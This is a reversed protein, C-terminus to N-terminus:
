AARAKWAAIRDAGLTTREQKSLSQWWEGLAAMGEGAKTDGLAELTALDRPEQKPDEALPQVIYPERKGRTVTLSVQEPRALHSMHSIRIGGVDKGGFKVEPDRFLTLSRGIYASSDPGWFLVLVRRMSKGPKYPRGNDGDYHIVVPQEANGASVSTIRITRPGGILDDSNTQDSRPIITQSLDM